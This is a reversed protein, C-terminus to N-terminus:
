APRGAGYNDSCERATDEASPASQGFRKRTMESPRDTAAVAAADDDAAERQRWRQYRRSIRALSDFVAALLGTTLARLKRWPRLGLQECRRPRRNGDARRAEQGGDEATIHQGARVPRGTLPQQEVRPALVAQRGQQYEEPDGHPRCFAQGGCGAITLPYPGDWGHKRTVHKDALKGANTPGGM